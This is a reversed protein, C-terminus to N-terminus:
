HFGSKVNVVLTSAMGTKEMTLTWIQANGDGYM